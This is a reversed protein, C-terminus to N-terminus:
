FIVRYQKSLAHNKIELKILIIMACFPKSSSGDQQTDRRISPRDPEIQLRNYPLEKCGL